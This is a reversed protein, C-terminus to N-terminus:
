AADALSQRAGPWPHPRMPHACVGLLSIVGTGWQALPERDFRQDLRVDGRQTAEVIATFTRDLRRVFRRALEHPTEATAGVDATLLSMYWYVADLGARAISAEIGDCLMTADSVGGLMDVVGQAVGR